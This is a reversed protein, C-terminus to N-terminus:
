VVNKDLQEHPPFVQKFKDEISLGELNNLYADMMRQIEHDDIDDLHDIEVKGLYDHYVLLYAKYSGTGFGGSLVDAENAKISEALQHRIEDISVIKSNKTMFSNFFNEAIEIGNGAHYGYTTFFSFISSNRNQSIYYKTFIDLVNVVKHITAQQSDTETKLILTENKEKKMMLDYKKLLDENIGKLDEIEQKLISIKQSNEQEQMLNRQNIEELKNTNRLVSEEISKIIHELQRMGDQLSKNEERLEHIEGIISEKDHDIYQIPTPLEATQEPKMGSIFSQDPINTNQALETVLQNDSVLGSPLEPPMDAPPQEHEVIEVPPTKCTDSDPYFKRRINSIDEPNSIYGSVIKNNADLTEYDIFYENMTILLEGRKHRAAYQDLTSLFDANKSKTLSIVKNKEGPFKVKFEKLKKKSEVNVKKITMLGNKDIDIFYIIPDKLIGSEYYAYAPKNELLNKLEDKNIKSSEPDFSLLILGCEYKLKLEPNLELIEKGNDRLTKFKEQNYITEMLLNKENQYKTKGDEARTGSKGRFMTM